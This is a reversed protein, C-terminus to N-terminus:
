PDMGLRVSVPWWKGDARGVFHYANIKNARNDIDDVTVGKFDSSWTIQRGDTGDIVIFLFFQAGATATSPATINTTAGTLTFTTLGTSTGSGRIHVKISELGSEANFASVAAASSPLDRARITGVPVVAIPQDAAADYVRYHTVNGLRKPQEWTLVGGVLSLPAPMDPRRHLTEQRAGSTLWNLRELDLADEASPPTAATEPKSARDRTAARDDRM